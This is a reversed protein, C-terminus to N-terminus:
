RRFRASAMRAPRCGFVSVSAPQLIVLQRRIPLRLPLHEPPEVPLLPRPASSPVRPMLRGMGNRTAEVSPNPGRLIPVVKSTTV